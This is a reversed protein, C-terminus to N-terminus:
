SVVWVGLDFLMASAMRASVRALAVVVVIIIIVVVVVVVVVFRSDYRTHDRALTGANEGDTM